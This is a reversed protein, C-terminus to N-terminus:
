KVLHGPKEIVVPRLRPHSEDFIRISVAVCAPPDGISQNGAGSFIRRRREASGGSFPLFNPSATVGANSVGIFCRAGMDGGM